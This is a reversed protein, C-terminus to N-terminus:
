IVSQKIVRLHTAEASKHTLIASRVLDTYCHSLIHLYYFGLAKLVYLFAKTLETYCVGM